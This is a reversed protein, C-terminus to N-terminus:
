QDPHVPKTDDFLEDLRSDGLWSILASLEDEAALKLSEGIETSAATPEGVAGTPTFDITDLGLNAGHRRKGWGDPAGDEATDLRDRDVYEEDIALLMSTEGHGAHGGDTEFTERLQDAVAEWWNWTIAYATEEGRLRQGVRSLANVNGGHGNVFIIRNIGHSALSRVVEDVYQVFTEEGVWLTGAFHRHHASVGVPISPTRIVRPEQAGVTAFHTATITDTGLPLAPGHQETSGTPVLAIDVTAEDAETTTLTALNM